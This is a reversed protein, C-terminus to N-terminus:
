QDDTHDRFMLGLNVLQQWGTYETSEETWFDPSESVADYFADYRSPDGFHQRRTKEETARRAADPLFKTHLLAGSMVDKGDARWTQNLRAPLANHTSNVYVFSRDWFVLPIKNLTPSREPTDAFFIRARPGGQCWLNNMKAQRQVWYGHADFWRLVEIPNQGPEYATQDLHGKPYLDIMLAAVQEQGQRSLRATLDPLAVTDHDPYVLLEDADVTVCWHGSGYRWLLATLWDMGFRAAKYSSESRWLSVDPQEALIADTGDTSGNDVVLFHQVGLGRYHALFYPLRLAENRM